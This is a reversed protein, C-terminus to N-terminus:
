KAPAAGVLQDVVPDMKTATGSYKTLAYGGKGRLHFVGSAIQRGGRNLYLEAHSLYPVLDWSRLATYSLIYECTDPVEGRFVQSTISHHSLRARITSVFDDVQVKPNEHICVHTLELSSDIPNVTVSTCGALAVFAALVWRGRSRRQM